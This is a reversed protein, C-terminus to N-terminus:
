DFRLAILPDVAARRAPVYSAGIAVRRSGRPPLARRDQWPTGRRARLM